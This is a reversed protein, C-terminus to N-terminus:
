KSGTLFHNVFWIILTSGAVTVAWGIWRFVTLLYGLDEMRSDIKEEFEEQKSIHETLQSSIGNIANNIDQIEKMLRGETEVMAKKREVIAVNLNNQVEEPNM